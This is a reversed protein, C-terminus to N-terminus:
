IFKLVCHLHFFCYSNSVELTLDMAPYEDEEVISTNRFAFGIFLIVKGLFMIQNKTCLDDESTLLDLSLFDGVLHLPKFHYSNTLSCM